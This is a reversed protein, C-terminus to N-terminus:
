VIGVKSSPGSPRPRVARTVDWNKTFIRGQSGSIHHNNTDETTMVRSNMDSASVEEGVNCKKYNGVFLFGQVLKSIIGSNAAADQSLTMIADARLRLISAVSLRSSFENDHVISRFNM